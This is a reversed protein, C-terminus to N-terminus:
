CIKMTRLFIIKNPGDYHPQVKGNGKPNCFGEKGAVSWNLSIGSCSGSRFLLLQYKRETIPRSMHISQCRALIESWHIRKRQFISEKIAVRDLTTKTRKGCSSASFELLMKLSEVILNFQPKGNRVWSAVFILQQLQRTRPPKMELLTQFNRTGYTIGHESLRGCFPM